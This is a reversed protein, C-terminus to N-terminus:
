DNEFFNDASFFKIVGWIIAGILVTGAVIGMAAIGPLFLGAVIKLWGDVERLRPDIWLAINIGVYCAIVVAKILKTIFRDLQLDTEM